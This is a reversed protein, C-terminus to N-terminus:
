VPGPGLDILKNLEYLTITISAIDGVWRKITTDSEGAGFVFMITKGEKLFAAINELDAKEGEKGFKYMEDPGFLEIAEDISELTLVQKDHKFAFENVAKINKVLVLVAETYTFVMQSFELAADEEGAYIIVLNGEM